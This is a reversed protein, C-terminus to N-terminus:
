DITNQKKNPFFNVINKKEDFHKLTAIQKKM